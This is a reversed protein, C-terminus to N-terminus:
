RSAVGTRFIKGGFCCSQSYVRRVEKRQCFFEKHNFRPDLLMSQILPAIRASYVDVINERMKLNHISIRFRYYPIEEETIMTPAAAKKLTEVKRPLPNTGYFPTVSGTPFQAEYRQKAAMHEDDIHELLLHQHENPMCIKRVLRMFSAAASVALAGGRRAVSVITDALCRARSQESEIFEQHPSLVEHEDLFPVDTPSLANPASDIGPARVNEGWVDLHDESLMSCHSCLYYHTDKTRSQKIRKWKKTTSLEGTERPGKRFCGGKGSLPNCVRARRCHLQKGYANVPFSQGCNMPFSGDCPKLDNVNEFFTGCEECVHPDGFNHLVDRHGLRTGYFRLDTLPVTFTNAVTSINRARKRTQGQFDEGRPDEGKPYIALKYLDIDYM